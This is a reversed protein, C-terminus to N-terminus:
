KIRESEPRTYKRGKGDWTINLNQNGFKDHVFGLYEAIKECAQKIDEKEDGTNITEIDEHFIPKGNETHEEIYRITIIVGENAKIIQLREDAELM